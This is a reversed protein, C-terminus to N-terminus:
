AATTTLIDFGIETRALPAALGAAIRRLAKGAAEHDLQYAGIGVDDAQRKILGYCQEFAFPKRGLEAPQVRTFGARRIVSRASFDIEINGPFM